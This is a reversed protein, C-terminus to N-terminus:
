SYVPSEGSLVEVQLHHFELLFSCLQSAAHLYQACTVATVTTAVFLTATVHM